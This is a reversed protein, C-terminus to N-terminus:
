GRSARARALGQIVLGAGLLSLTWPEPTPAPDAPPIVSLLRTADSSSFATIDVVRSPDNNFLCSLTGPNIDPGATVLTTRVDLTQLSQRLTAAATNTTSCPNQTSVPNPNGDTILVIDRQLFHGPSADPSFDEFLDVAKQMGALTATVGQPYTLNQVANTIASRTQNNNFTYKISATDAFLVVGFRTYSPFFSNILNVVFSKEMQFGTTGLSGSGDIVFVVDQHLIPAAHVPNLLSVSTALAVLALSLSKM